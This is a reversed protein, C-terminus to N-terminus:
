TSRSEPLLDGRTFYTSARQRIENEIVLVSTKRGLEVLEEKEASKTLGEARGSDVDDNKMWPWLTGEIIGFDKAEQAVPKRM